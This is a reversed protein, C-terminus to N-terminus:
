HMDPRSNKGHNKRDDGPVKLSTQGAIMQNDDDISAKSIERLDLSAM